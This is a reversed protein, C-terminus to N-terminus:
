GDSSILVSAEYGGWHETTVLLVASARTGPLLGFGAGNVDKFM